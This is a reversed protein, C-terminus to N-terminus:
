ERSGVAVINGYVEFVDRALRANFVRDGKVAECKGKHEPHQCTSKGCKWHKGLANRHKSCVFMQKLKGMELGFHGSRFLILEYELIKSSLPLVKFSKIRRGPMGPSIDPSFSRQFARLWQLRQKGLFLYVTKHSLYRLVYSYSFYSEEGGLLCTPCLRLKLSPAPYLYAPVMAGRMFKSTPRPRPPPHLMAFEFVM